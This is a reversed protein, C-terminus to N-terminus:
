LKMFRRAPRINREHALRTMWYHFIINWEVSYVDVDKFHERKVTEDAKMTAEPILGDIKAVYKSCYRDKPREM